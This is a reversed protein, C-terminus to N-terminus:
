NGTQGDLGEENDWIALTDEASGTLHARAFKADRSFLWDSGYCWEPHRDGWEENWREM